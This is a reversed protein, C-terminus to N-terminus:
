RQRSYGTRARDMAKMWYFLAREPWPFANHLYIYRHQRSHCFLTTIYGSGYFVTAPIRLAAALTATGSGLCYLSGVSAVIDCFDRLSTSRVTKSVGGFPLSKDRVAM